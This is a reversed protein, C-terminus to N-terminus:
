IDKWSGDADQSMYDPTNMKPNGQISVSQANQKLYEASYMKRNVWRPDSMGGPDKQVNFVGPSIEKSIYPMWGQKKDRSPLVYFGSGDPLYLVMAEKPPIPSGSGGVPEAEALDNFGEVLPNVALGRNKFFNEKLTAM